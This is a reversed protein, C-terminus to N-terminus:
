FLFIVKKTNDNKYTNKIYGYINSHNLVIWKFSGDHKTIDNINNSLNIMKHIYNTYFYNRYERKNELNIHILM